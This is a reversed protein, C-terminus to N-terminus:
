SDGDVPEERPVVLVVFTSWGRLEEEEKVAAGAAFGYGHVSASAMRQASGAEVVMSLAWGMVSDAARGPEETVVKHGGAIWELARDGPAVAVLMPM